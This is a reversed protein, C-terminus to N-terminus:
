APGAPAAPPKPDHLVSHPCTRPCVWPAATIRARDSDIQEYASTRANDKMQKVVLEVLRELVPLTKCLSVILSAIAALTM